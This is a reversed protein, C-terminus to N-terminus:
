RTDVGTHIHHSVLTVRHYGDSVAIGEVVPGLETDFIRDNQCVNEPCQVRYCYM